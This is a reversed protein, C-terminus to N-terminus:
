TVSRQTTLNSLSFKRDNVREITEAKGSGHIGKIQDVNLCGVEKM